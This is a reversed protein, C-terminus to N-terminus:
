FPTKLFSSIRASSEASSGRLTKFDSSPNGCLHIYLFPVKQWSFIQLKIAEGTFSRSVPFEKINQHEQTQHYGWAWQASSGRWNITGLTAGTPDGGPWWVLFEDYKM